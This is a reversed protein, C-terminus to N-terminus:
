TWKGKHPELLALMEGPQSVCLAEMQPHSSWSQSKRVPHRLGLHSLKEAETKEDVFHSRWSMGCLITLLILHSLIQFANLMTGSMNSASLLIVTAKMIIIVISNPAM